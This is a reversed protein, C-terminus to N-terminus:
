SKDKQEGPHSYTVLKKGDVSVTIESSENSHALARFMAALFGFEGPREASLDLRGCMSNLGVEDKFGLAQCLKKTSVGRKVNRPRVSAEIIM